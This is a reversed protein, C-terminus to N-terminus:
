WYIKLLDAPSDAYFQCKAAYKLFNYVSKSSVKPLTPALGLSWDNLNQGRDPERDADIPEQIRILIRIWVSIGTPYYV